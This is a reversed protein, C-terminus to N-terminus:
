NILISYQVDFQAAKLRLVQVRPLPYDLSLGVGVLRLVSIFVAGGRDFYVPYYVQGPNQHASSATCQWDPAGRWTWPVPWPKERSRRAPVPRIQCDKVDPRSGITPISALPDSGM